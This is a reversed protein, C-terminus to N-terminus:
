LNIALRQRPGDFHEILKVIAEEATIGDPVLYSYVIQHADKIYTEMGKCATEVEGSMGDDSLANGEFMELEEASKHLIDMYTMESIEKNSIM